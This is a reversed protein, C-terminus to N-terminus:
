QPRMEAGDTGCELLLACHSCHGIRSDHLLELSGVAGIRQSGTNLLAAGKREEYTQDLVHGM